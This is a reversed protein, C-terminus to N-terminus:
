YLSCDKIPEYKEKKYTKGDAQLWEGKGSHENNMCADWCGKENGTAKECRSLADIDSNLKRERILDEQNLDWCGGSPSKRGPKWNRGSCLRTFGNNILEQKFKISAMGGSYKPIYYTESEYCNFNKGIENCSKLIPESSAPRCLLLGLFVYAILTRM